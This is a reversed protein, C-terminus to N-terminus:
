VLGTPSERTGLACHHDTVACLSRAGGLVVVCLYDLGKLAVAYLCDLGLTVTCLLSLLVVTVACLLSLLVRTVKSRVVPWCYCRCVPLTQM